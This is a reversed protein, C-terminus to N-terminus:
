YKVGKIWNEYIIKLSENLETKPEFYPGLEEIKRALGEESPIRKGNSVWPSIKRIFSVTSENLILEDAEFIDILSVVSEEEIHYKIDFERLDM